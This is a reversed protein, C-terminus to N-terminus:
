RAEAHYLRCVNQGKFVGYFSNMIIKSPMLEFIDNHRSTKDKKGQQALETILGPLIANQRDFHAGLFGPL